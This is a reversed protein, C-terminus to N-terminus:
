DSPSSPQQQIPRRQFTKEKEMKISQLALEFIETGYKEQVEDFWKATEETILEDGLSEKAAAAAAIEPPLDLYFRSCIILCIDIIVGNCIRVFYENPIHSQIRMKWKEFYSFPLEVNVNFDIAQLIDLEARTIEELQPAGMATSGTQDNGVLSRILTSPATRCIRSLENYIMELPRYTNTAKCSTFLAATMLVFLKYPCDEENKFYNQLIVFATAIVPSLELKLGIRAKCILTWM